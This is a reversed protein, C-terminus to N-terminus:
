EQYRAKVTGWSVPETGVHPCNGVVHVNDVVISAEVVGGFEFSLSEFAGASGPLDQMEPVPVGDISLSYTNNVLDITFEFQQHVWYTWGVSLYNASNRSLVGDPRYEVSAM